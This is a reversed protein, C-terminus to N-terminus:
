NWLWTADYKRINEDATLIILNETVATAIILRDFPDRHLFPMTEVYVLYSDKLSLLEIGNQRIKNLFEVTGGEFNLKGISIKIAVEWVSAASIHLPASTDDIIHQVSASLKAKNDFAWLATHTDLLYRM